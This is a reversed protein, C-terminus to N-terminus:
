ALQRQVARRRANIKPDGEQERLEDRLERPTMMLQRELKWRQLLYDLVAVCALIVIAAVIVQLLQRFMASGLQHIELQMFGMLQERRVYLFAVAIGLLVVIKATALGSQAWRDGSAMKQLGAAPSLRSLDPAMNALRVHFGTQLLHVLLPIAIMAILAPAAIRGIQFLMERVQHHWSAAPALAVQVQFQRTTLELLYRALAPGVVVLCGVATLMTTASVLERSVAVQGDARALQRRRPTAPHVRQENTEPM